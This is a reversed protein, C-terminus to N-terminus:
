VRGGVKNDSQDSDWGVLPCSSGEGQSQGDDLDQDGKFGGTPIGM